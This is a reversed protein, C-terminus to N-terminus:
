FVAYSIRMLSQLESTHEESRGNLIVPRQGEFVVEDMNTHLERAAYGSGTAIRALGDALWPPMSSLNDYSMVHSNSATSILDREDRPPARGPALNPDCLARCVRATTTKSSGQEGSIM